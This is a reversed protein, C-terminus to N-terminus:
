SISSFYSCNESKKIKGHHDFSRETSFRCTAPPWSRFEGTYNRCSIRVGDLPEKTTRALQHDSWSFESGLPHKSKQFKKRITVRKGCSTLFCNRHRIRPRTHMQRQLRAPSWAWACTGKTLGSSSADLVKVCCCCDTDVSRWSKAQSREVLIEVNQREGSTSFKIFIGWKDFHGNCVQQSVLLVTM